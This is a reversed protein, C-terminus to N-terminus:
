GVLLFGTSIALYHTPNFRCVMFVYLPTRVSHRQRSQICSSKFMYINQYLSAVHVLLLLLVCERGRPATAKLPGWTLLDSPPSFLSLSLAADDWGCRRVRWMCLVRARENVINTYPTILLTRVVCFIFTDASYLIRLWSPMLRCRADMEMPVVMHFIFCLSDEM